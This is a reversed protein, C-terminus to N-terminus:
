KGHVSCFGVFTPYLQDRSAINLELVNIPIFTVAHGACPQSEDGEAELLTWKKYLLGGLVKGLTIIGL